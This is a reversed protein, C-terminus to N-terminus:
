TPILRPSGCSATYGVWEEAANDAETRHNRQAACLKAGYRGPCVAYGGDYLM